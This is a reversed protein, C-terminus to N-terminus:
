TLNVLLLVTELEYGILEARLQEIKHAKTLGTINFVYMDPPNIRQKISQQKHFTNTM